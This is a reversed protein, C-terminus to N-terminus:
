QGGARRCGVKVAGRAGVGSRDHAPSASRKRECRLMLASSRGPNSEGRLLRGVARREIDHDGSPALIPGNRDRSEEQKGSGQLKM